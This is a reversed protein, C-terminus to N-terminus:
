SCNGNGDAHGADAVCQPSTQWSVAPKSVPVRAGATRRDSAAPGLAFGGGGACVCRAGGVRGRRVSRARRPVGSSRRRRRFDELLARFEAGYRRRWGAAHADTLLAALRANMRGRTGDAREPLADARGATRGVCAPGAATIRYPRRGREELELPEIFGQAELRAIVGYLTGPGLHQGAHVEVDRLIAYGHKSGPALAALVLLAPESLRGLGAGRM